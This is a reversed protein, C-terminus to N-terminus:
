EVKTSMYLRFLITYITSDRLDHRHGSNSMESLLETTLMDPVATQRRFHLQRCVCTVDGQIRLLSSIPCIRHRWNTTSHVNALNCIVIFCPFLSFSPVVLGWNLDSNISFKKGRNKPEKTIRYCVIGAWSARSSM